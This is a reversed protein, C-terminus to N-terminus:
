EAVSIEEAGPRSSYGGVDIFDAGEQLMKDAQAIIDTESQYRGGDYFSDPTVNLIGM